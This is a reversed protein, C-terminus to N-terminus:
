DRGQLVLLWDNAGAGNDGPTQLAIPQGQPLTQWARSSGKAPNFWHARLRGGGSFARTDVTFDRTQLGTSPFYTVSLNRDLSHATLALSLGQGYGQTIISHHDEPALQEWRFEKFFAALNQMDCSGQSGLAQSWTLSTPFLGPGDFHWMPNNGLFQGCGGGLLTWYAQRRIQDPTSHHEGEYTSEILVLPRAPTRAYEALVPQFLNSQYSYVTNIALWPEQDYVSAASNEPACHVTMLHTRDEELIGAALETVAWQDAPQPTYDGGLLWIINPLDRFRRGVFRGYSRLKDKGGAKIEKFFGEEGGGYGLYAPALWVVIARDNAKRIVEHAFDFYNRNPSSFDGAPSFPAVGSRTRPPHTCFKHEILNVIISNFGRHHRDELYRTLDPESLQAILSWPTDGVVLFPEDDQDVLYRHNTSVKLPFSAARVALADGALAGALLPIFALGKSHQSFLAM